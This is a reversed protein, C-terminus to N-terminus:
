ATTAPQARRAAFHAKCEIHSESRALRARNGIGHAAATLKRKNEGLLTRQTSVPSLPRPQRRGKISRVVSSVRPRSTCECSCPSTTGTMGYVLELYLCPPAACAHASQQLRGTRECGLTPSSWMKVAPLAPATTWGTAHMTDAGM